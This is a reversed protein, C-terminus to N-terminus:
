VSKWDRFLSSLEKPLKREGHISLVNEELRIQIDERALDPLDVKM